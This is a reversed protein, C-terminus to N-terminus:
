RCAAKGQDRFVHKLQRDVLKPVETKKECTRGYHVTLAKRAQKLLQDGAFFYIKPALEGPQKGIFQV